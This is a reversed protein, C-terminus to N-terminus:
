RGGNFILVFNYRVAPLLVMKGAPDFLLEYRTKTKEM